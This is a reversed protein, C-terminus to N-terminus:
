NDPFIKRLYAEAGAQADAVGEGYSGEYEPEDSIHNDIEKHLDQIILDILPM